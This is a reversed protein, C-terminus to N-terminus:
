SLKIKKLIKVRDLALEAFAVELVIMVGVQALRTVFLPWYASGYLYSICWTNILLGCIIQTSFVSILIRPLNCKKYLLLGFILGTIAATVTFGPFYAGIPFLIAGIFDGLGGVLLGGVPGLLYAALMVPVFSFGIKLNWLSISLFRSLVVEVAILVALLALQKTTIKSLKKM